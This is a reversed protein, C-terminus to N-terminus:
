RDIAIAVRDDGSAQRALMYLGINLLPMTLVVGIGCALSGISGLLAVILLTLLAMLLNDQLLRFGTKVASVGDIEGGVAVQYVAFPFLPLLLIGPLICFFLGIYIVILSLIGAVLTAGLSDYFCSFVDGVDFSGTEEAKRMGRMYGALLPGSLVSFSISNIVAVILSALVHSIFDDKYSDISDGVVEGISISSM